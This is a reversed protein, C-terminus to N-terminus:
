SRSALVLIAIGLILVACPIWFQADTLMRQLM